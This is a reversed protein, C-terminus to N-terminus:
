LQNEWSYGGRRHKAIEDGFRSEARDDLIYARNGSTALLLRHKGDLWYEFPLVGSGIQVFRALEGRTFSPRDEHRDGYRLAQGTKLATMGELMDFELHTSESFPLRQVADFVCWDATIAGATKLETRIGNRVLVAAGDGITGTHSLALSPMPRDAADFFESTFTWRLPSSLEDGRCEIRATMVQVIGEWNVQKQEVDLTFAEDNSGATRRIRLYGADLNLLGYYGHCLWIRYRHVWSARPDFGAPTEPFGGIVGIDELVKPSLPRGVIQGDRDTPM